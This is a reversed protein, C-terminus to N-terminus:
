LNVQVLYLVIGRFPRGVRALTRDRCHSPGINQFRLLYRLFPYVFALQLNKKVKNLSWSEIIKCDCLVKTGCFVM